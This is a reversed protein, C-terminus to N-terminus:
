AIILHAENHSFKDEPNGVLDSVFRAICGCLHSSAQFKPNLFYLSQVVCNSRLQDADKTKAYSFAPKRVIRYLNNLNLLYIMLFLKVKLETVPQRNTLRNTRNQRQRVKAAEVVWRSLVIM